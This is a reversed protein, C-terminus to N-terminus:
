CTPVYFWIGMQFTAIIQVLPNKLNNILFMFNIYWITVQGNQCM